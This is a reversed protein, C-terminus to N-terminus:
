RVLRDNVPTVRAATVHARRFEPIYGRSGTVGIQQGVFPQLNVDPTPTIFTLVQGQANVLAFQPAGPRKSVVPRLIGVADYPSNTANGTIPTASTPTMSAIPQQMTNPQGAATAPLPAAAYRRQISSFKDIKALTAKVATRDEITQASVLLQEASQELPAINWTAPQEAVMRSLQLELQQLRAAIEATSAPTTNSPAAAIPTVDVTPIPAM